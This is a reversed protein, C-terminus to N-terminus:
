FGTYIQHVSHGGEIINSMHIHLVARQMVMHAQNFDMSVIVKFHQHVGSSYLIVKGAVCLKNLIYMAFNLCFVPFFFIIANFIFQPMM